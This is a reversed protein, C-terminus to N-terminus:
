FRKEYILYNAYMMKVNRNEPERDTILELVRGAEALEEEDFDTLKKGIIQYELLWKAAPLYRKSLLGQMVLKCEDDSGLNQRVLGFRYMLDLNSPDAELQRRIVIEATPFDDRELAVRFQRNLLRNRWGAGGSFAIFGTTFLVISLIIAPIAKPADRWPIGLFWSQIFERVWRMWTLPNLPHM